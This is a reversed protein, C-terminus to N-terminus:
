VGLDTLTIDACGKVALLAEEICRIAKFENKLKTPNHGQQYRVYAKAFPMIDSSLLQAETYGRSPAGKKTFNGVGRWVHSYWDLDEGFVTLRDRCMLVFENLNERCSLQSKPVFLFVNSM